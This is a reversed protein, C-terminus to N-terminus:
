RGVRLITRICAPVLRCVHMCGTAAVMVPMSGPMIFQVRMLADDHDPMHVFVNMPVVAAVMVPVSLPCRCGVSCVAAFAVERMNVFGSATMVVPVSGPATVRMGRIAGVTGAPNVLMGISDAAVIEPGTTGVRGVSPPPAVRVRKGADLAMDVLGTAPVIAVMASPPAIRVVSFVAFFACGDMHVFAGSSTGTSLIVPFAVLTKDGCGVVGAGGAVGTDVYVLSDSCGQSTGAALKEPFACAAEPRGHM